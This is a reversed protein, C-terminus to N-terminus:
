WGTSGTRWWWSGWWCFTFSLLLNHDWLFPFPRSAFIIMFAPNHVLSNVFKLLKKLLASKQLDWWHPFARWSTRWVFGGISWHLPLAAIVPVSTLCVFCIFSCKALCRVLGGRPTVDPWFRDHNWRWFYCNILSSNPRGLFRYILCFHWWKALYDLHHCQNCWM